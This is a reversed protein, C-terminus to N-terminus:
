LVFKNTEPAGILAPLETELFADQQWKDEALRTIVIAEMVPADGVIIFLRGGIELQEQFLSDFQPLSGTVVIVDFRNQFQRNKLSDTIVLEVNNINLAQLQEEAQASLDAYIEESYVSTGLQALLATIYGSGTGIELIREHSQINLAQLMRAEITPKMMVQQNALPINTDSFALHQYTSPVFKERPTKLILDLVVQDSVDWPRIQQEIMNFRAQEIDM